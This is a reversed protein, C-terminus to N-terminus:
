ILKKGFLGRPYGRSPDEWILEFGRKEYFSVMIQNSLATHLLLYPSQIKRAKKEAANYLLSGIGLGQLDEHVAFRSFYSADADPSLCLKEPLQLIDFSSIKRQILRVSGVIGDKNSVAVFFPVTLIAARVDDATESSADLAAEPIGANFCYMRMSVSIVEHINEAEDLFAPRVTILPEQASIKFECM